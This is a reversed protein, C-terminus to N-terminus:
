IANVDLVTPILDNALRVIKSAIRWQGDVNRLAHRYHGFHSSV